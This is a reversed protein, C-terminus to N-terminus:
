NLSFDRHDSEKRESETLAKSLKRMNELVFKEDSRRYRNICPMCVELNRTEGRVEVTEENVPNVSGDDNEYKGLRNKQCAPCTITRITPIDGNKKYQAYGIM